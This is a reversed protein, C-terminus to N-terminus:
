KASTKETKSKGLFIIVVIFGVFFIIGWFDAGSLGIASMLQDLSPFVFGTTSLIVVIFIIVLVAAVIIAGYKLFKDSAILQDFNGAFMAMLMLACVIVIAVTSVWPLFGTLFTVFWSTLVAAMAISVAIIANVSPGREGFLKTRELIGYVVAFVLMFPLIFDFIGFKQWSAIVSTFVSENSM